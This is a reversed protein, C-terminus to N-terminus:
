VYGRIHYPFEEARGPSGPERVNPLARWVERRPRVGGQGAAEPSGSGHEGPPREIFIIMGVIVM